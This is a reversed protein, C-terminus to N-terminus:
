LHMVELITLVAGALLSIVPIAFANRLKPLHACAICCVPMTVAGVVFSYSAAKTLMTEKLALHCTVYFVFNILGLGFFSIHGLRYLRRKWSGYGGLWDERNFNMGMAAGGLFGFLIWLWTIGLNIQISSTM